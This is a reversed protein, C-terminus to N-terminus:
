PKALALALVLLSIAAAWSGAVRVGVRQWPRVAGSAVGAVILLAACAGVGTGALSLAAERTSAAADPASDLGVALGCAAALAATLARPLPPSAAVLLGLLAAAAVPAVAVSAAAPWGRAAIALGAALGAVFAPLAAEAQALWRQGLLLALAGLALLHAPVLLPHLVGGYFGGLSSGAPAHAEAATAALLPAAAALGLAAAARGARSV